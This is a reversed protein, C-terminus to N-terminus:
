PSVMAKSPFKFIPLDKCEVSAGVSKCGRFNEVFEKALALNADTVGRVILHTSNVNRAESYVAEVIGGQFDIFKCVGDDETCDEFKRDLIKSQIDPNGGSYVSASLGGAMEVEYVFFDSALSIKVKEGSAVGFCSNDTYINCYLYNIRKSEASAGAFSMLVVLGLALKPMFNFNGMIM